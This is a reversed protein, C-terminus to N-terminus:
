YLILTIRDIHKKFITKIQSNKFKFEHFKEITRNLFVDKNGQVTWDFAM